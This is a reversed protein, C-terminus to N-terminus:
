GNGGECYREIEVWVERFDEDKLVRAFDYESYETTFVRKCEQLIDLCQQKDGAKLAVKALSLFPDSYVGRGKEKAMLLKSEAEKM